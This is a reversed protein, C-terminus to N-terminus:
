SGILPHKTQKWEKQQFLYHQLSYSEVYTSLKKTTQQYHDWTCTYDLFCFLCLFFLIFGLEYIYLVSQHNGSAPKLSPCFSYLSDFPVFKWNYPAGPHSLQNLMWYEQYPSLNHDRWGSIWSGASCPAKKFNERERQGELGGWFLYIFKFFYKLFGFKWSYTMLIYNAAHRSCNTISYQM